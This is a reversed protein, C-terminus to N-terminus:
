QLCKSRQLTCHVTVDNACKAARMWAILLVIGVAAFPIFTFQRLIMRVEPDMGLDPDVRAGVKANTDPYAQELQRAITSFEANAREITVGPKLRGFVELWSAGRESLMQGLTPIPVWVDMKSGAKIGEFEGDAVGVVIYVDGNLKITKGIVDPDANFRRRWLGYSIVVVRNGKSESEDAPTSLRGQEPKVGLVDFFNGSVQEGEVREAERGDNLNFSGGTRAALGSM